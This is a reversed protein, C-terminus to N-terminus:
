EMEEFPNKGVATSVTAIRKLLIKPMTAWSTWKRSKEKHKYLSTAGRMKRLQM